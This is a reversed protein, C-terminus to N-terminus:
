VTGLLVKLDWLRVTEDESGSALWKGDPSFVVSYVRETHDKLELKTTPPTTTLDWIRITKDASGSALLRGNPHFAVSLM